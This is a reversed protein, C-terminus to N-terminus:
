RVSHHFEGENSVVIRRKDEDNISNNIIAISNHKDGTWHVYKENYIIM